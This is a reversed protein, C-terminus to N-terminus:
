AAVTLLGGARPWHRALLDRSFALTVAGCDAESKCVTGAKSGGMCIGGNDCEEGANTVGDGCVGAPVVGCGSLANKVATLIEDITIQSDHNADGNMCTSAEATGLAINVLTLVDSVTVTSKNTCDGVCQARVVSPAINLMLGLTVIALTRYTGRKWGSDGSRKM